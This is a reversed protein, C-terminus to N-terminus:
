ANADLQTRFGLRERIRAKLLGRYTRAEDRSVLLAQRQFLARLFGWVLGCTAGYASPTKLRELAKIFFFLLGGGCRYFIEGHMIGTRWQGAASGEPKHHDMVLKPFHCTKWGRSMAKIEDVTDWGREEIFGGIQKFCELRLVKSCGAAHYRPMDVLEWQGPVRCERYVGSAIGLAPDRQFEGCLREFYDPAFTLDADLKVVLDFGDTGASQYGENFAKIVAGGARRAGGPPRHIVRTWSGQSATLKELAEATGDTSGDDVIIWRFARHTQAAMSRFTAEVHAAENKVPTIVVYQPLPM